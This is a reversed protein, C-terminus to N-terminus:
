VQRLEMFDRWRCFYNRQNHTEKYDLLNRLAKCAEIKLEYNKRNRLFVQRWKFYFFMRRKKNVNYDVLALKKYNEHVYNMANRYWKRLYFRRM